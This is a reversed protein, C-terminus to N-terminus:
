VGGSSVVLRGPKVSSSKISVVFSESLIPYLESCKDYKLVYRQNLELNQEPNRDWHHVLHQCDWPGVETLYAEALSQRLYLHLM